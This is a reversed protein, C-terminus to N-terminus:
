MTAVPSEYYIYQVEIRTACSDWMAGSDISNDPAM